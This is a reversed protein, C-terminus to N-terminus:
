DFKIYRFIYANGKEDAEIKNEPFIISPIRIVIHKINEKKVVGHIHRCVAKRLKEDRVEEEITDIEYIEFPDKDVSVASKIDYGAMIKIAGQAMGESFAIKIGENTPLVSNAYHDEKTGIEFNKGKTVCEIINQLNEVRLILDRNQMEIYSQEVHSNLKLHTEEEIFELLEGTKQKLTDINKISKIEEVLSSIELGREIEINEYNM